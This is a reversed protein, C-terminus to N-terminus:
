FRGQNAANPSIALFVREYFDQYSNCKIPQIKVKFSQLIETIAKNKQLALKKRYLKDFEEENNASSNLQATKMEPYFFSIQNIRFGFFDHKRLIEERQMLLWWLHNESFDLSSGVFYIDHTFFLDMWIQTRREEKLRILIGDSYKRKETSGFIFNQMKLLCESYHQFGIMISEEAYNRTLDSIKRNHYLEGHIHRVTVNNLKYGRRFSHKSEKNYLSFEKKQEMFDPNVALELHYDYNTTIIEEIGSDMIKKHLSLDFDDSKMADSLLKSINVKLDKLRSDFTSNKLSNYIMEEFALPFPKLDNALDVELSFKQTLNNLLDGWSITNLAVRNIGNGIFLAKPTESM